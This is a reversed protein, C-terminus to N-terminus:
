SSSKCCLAILSQSATIIRMGRVNAKLMACPVGLMISGVRFTRHKNPQKKVMICELEGEVVLATTLYMRLYARWVCAQGRPHTIAYLPTHTPAMASSLGWLGSPRTVVTSNGYRVPTPSTNWSVRFNQDQPTAEPCPLASVRLWRAATPLKSASGQLKFGAM